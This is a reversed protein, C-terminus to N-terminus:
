AHVDHYLRYQQERIAPFPQFTVPAVASAAEWHSFNSVQQGAALLQARTFRSEPSNVAFLTIPGCLLAVINPHESDVAELRLPRDITYEITDGDEWERHLPLFSGARFGNQFPRGNISVSTNRGAWEPVRLWIAFTEPRDAHLRM